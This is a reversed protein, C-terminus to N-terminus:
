EGKYHRASSLTRLVEVGALTEKAMREELRRQSGYTTKIADQVGVDRRSNAAMYREMQRSSEHLQKIMAQVGMNDGTHLYDRDM